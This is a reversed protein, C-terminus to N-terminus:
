KNYISELFKVEKYDMLYSETETLGHMKLDLIEDFDFDFVYYFEQPFFKPRDEIPRLLIETM